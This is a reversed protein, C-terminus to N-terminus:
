GARRCSAPSTITKGCNISLILLRMSLNPRIFSLAEVVSKCIRLSSLRVEFLMECVKFLIRLPACDSPNTSLSTVGVMRSPRSTIGTAGAKFRRILPITWSSDAEPFVIKISGSSTTSAFLRMRSSSPSSFLSIIRM